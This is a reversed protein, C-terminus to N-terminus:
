RRTSASGAPPKVPTVQRKPNEPLGEAKYADIWNQTFM